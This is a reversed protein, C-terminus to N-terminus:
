RGVRSLEELVVDILAESREMDSLSTLAPVPAGLLVDVGTKGGFDKSIARLFHWLMNPSVEASRYEFIFRKLLSHDVQPYFQFAPYRREDLGDPPLIAFFEGQREREFFEDHSCNLRQAGETATLEIYEAFHEM